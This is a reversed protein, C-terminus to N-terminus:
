SGRTQLSLEILRRLQATSTLAYNLLSLGELYQLPSRLSQQPSLRTFNRWSLHLRTINPCKAIIQQLPLETFVDSFGLRVRTLLEAYLSPARQLSEWFEMVPKILGNGPDTLNSVTCKTTVCDLWQIREGYGSDIGHLLILIWFTEQLTIM